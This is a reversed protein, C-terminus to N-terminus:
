IVLTSSIDDRNGPKEATNASFFTIQHQPLRRITTTKSMLAEFKANLDDNKKTTLARGEVSLNYSEVAIKHSEAIMLRESISSKLTEEIMASAKKVEQIVGDTEISRADLKSMAAALEDTSQKKIDLCALRQTSAVKLRDLFGQLEKTTEGLGTQITNIAINSQQIGTCAQTIATDAEDLNSIKHTLGTSVESWDDNIRQNTEHLLTNSADIDIRVEDLKDTVERITVVQETLKTAQETLQENCADVNLAIEKFNTSVVRINTLMAQVNQISNGLQREAEAAGKTVFAIREVESNHHSTLLYGAILYLSEAVVIGLEIVGMLAGINAGILAVVAAVFLKRQVPLQSFYEALRSLESKLESDIRKLSQMVGTAEQEHGRRVQEEDIAQNIRTRAPLDNIESLVSLVPIITPM